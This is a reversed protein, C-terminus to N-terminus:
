QLKLEILAKCKILTYIYIYIYIFYINQENHKVFYTINLCNQIM